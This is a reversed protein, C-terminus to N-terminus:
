LTSPTTIPKNDEMSFDRLINELYLLFAQIQLWFSRSLSGVTLVRKEKQKGVHHVASSRLMMPLLKWYSIIMITDNNCYSCTYHASPPLLILIWYRYHSSLIYLAHKLPGYAFVNMGFAGSAVAKHDEVSLHSIWLDTLTLTLILLLLELRYSNITDMMMAAFLIQSAQELYSSAVATSLTWSPWPLYSWPFMFLLALLWGM